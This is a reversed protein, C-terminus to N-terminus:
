IRTEGEGDRDGKGKRGEEESLQGRSRNNV